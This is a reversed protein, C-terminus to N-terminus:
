DMDLLNATKTAAAAVSVLQQTLYDITMSKNRLDRDMQAIILKQNEVVNKLDEREIYHNERNDNLQAIWKQHHQTKCHQQFANYNNYSKDRRSGCPCMIGQSLLASNFSPIKDIYKGFADISPCYLSPQIAIDM